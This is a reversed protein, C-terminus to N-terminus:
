FTVTCVEIHEAGDNDDQAKRLAEELRLTQSRVGIVKVNLREIEEDKGELDKEADALDRKIVALEKEQQARVAESIQLDKEACVRVCM